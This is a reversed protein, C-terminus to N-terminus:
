MGSALSMPTKRKKLLHSRISVNKISHIAWVAECFENHKRAAKRRYKEYGPQSLIKALTIAAASDGFTYPDLNKTRM